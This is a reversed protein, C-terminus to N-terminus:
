PDKKHHDTSGFVIPRYEVLIGKKTDEYIHVVRSGQIPLGAAILGQATYHRQLDWAAGKSYKVHSLEGAFTGKTNTVGVWGTKIEHMWLKGDRVDEVIVDAQTAKGINPLPVFLQAAVPRLGLHEWFRVLQQTYPHLALHKKKRKRKKAASASSSSPDEKVVLKVVDRDVRKGLAKSSARKLFTQGRKFRRKTVKQHPYFTKKLYQTLGGCKRTNGDATSYVYMKNGKYPEQRASKIEPRNTYSELVNM